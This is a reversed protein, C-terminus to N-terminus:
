NQKSKEEEETDSNEQCNEFPSIKFILSLIVYKM